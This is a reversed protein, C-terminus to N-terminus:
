SILAKNVGNECVQNVRLYKIIKWCTMHNECERKKITPTHKYPCNSIKKWKENSVKYNRYYEWYLERNIDGFHKEWNKEISFIPKNYPSVGYYM